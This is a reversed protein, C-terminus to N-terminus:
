IVQNIIIIVLILLIFMVVFWTPPGMYLQGRDNM